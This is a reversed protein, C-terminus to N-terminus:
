PIYNYLILRLVFAFFHRGFRESRQQIHVVIWRTRSDFLLLSTIGSFGNRIFSPQRLKILCSVQVFATGRFRCVFIIISVWWRIMLEAAWPCSRKDSLVITQSSFRVPLCFGRELRFVFVLLFAPFNRFWAVFLM